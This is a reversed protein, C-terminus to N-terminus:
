EDGQLALLASVASRIEEVPAAFLEDMPFSDFLHVAAKYDHSGEILDEAELIRELKRHLVPTSSAPEAYARSTFLGLLRAQGGDRDARALDAMRELRSVLAPFAEVVERVTNLVGRVGDELAVLEEPTLRRDLEFHMVSERHEADRAHTVRVIRGTDAREIG